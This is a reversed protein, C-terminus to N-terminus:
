PSRWFRFAVHAAVFAGARWDDYLSVKSNDRRTHAGNHLVAFESDPPGFLTMRTSERRSPTHTRKVRAPELPRRLVPVLDNPQPKSAWLRAHDNMSSGLWGTSSRSRTSRSTPERPFISGCCGMPTRM